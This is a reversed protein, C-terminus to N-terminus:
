TLTFYTIWIKGRAKGYCFRTVWSKQIPKKPKTGDMDKGQIM